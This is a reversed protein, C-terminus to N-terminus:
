GAREIARQSRQRREEGEVIINRERQGRGSEPRREGGGGGRREGARGRMRGVEGDECGGGRARGRGEKAGERRCARRM